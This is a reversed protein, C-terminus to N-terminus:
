TWLNHDNNRVMVELSKFQAISFVHRIVELVHFLPKGARRVELGMQDPPCVREVDCTDMQYM